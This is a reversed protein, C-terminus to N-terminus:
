IVSFKEERLKVAGVILILLSLSILGWEGMTPINSAPAIPMMVGPAIIPFSITSDSPDYAQSALVTVGCTLFFEDPNSESLDFDGSIEVCGYPPVSILGIMEDDDDAKDSGFAGSLSVVAASNNCIVVDDTGGQPDISFVYLSTVTADCAGVPPPCADSLLAFDSEDIATAPDDAQTETYSTALFPTGDMCKISFSDGGSGFKFDLDDEDLTICSFAPIFLDITTENTPDSDVVMVAMLNFDTSLNNCLIINDNGPGRVKISSVCIDTTTLDCQTHAYNALLILILLVTFYRIMSHM